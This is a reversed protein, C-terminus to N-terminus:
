LYFIDSLRPYAELAIQTGTDGFKSAINGKLIVSGIPTVRKYSVGFLHWDDAFRRDFHTYGYTIGVANKSTLENLRVLLGRAETNSPNIRLLQTLADEAALYEDTSNLIKAKLLWLAESQPNQTLGKDAIELAKVEEDNWYELSAYALYFDEDQVQKQELDQFVARAEDVNKNWTYLRGLFVSIDTYDPSKELAQKALSIAAPYDKQDFAVTRAQTFLDDATKEEQAFSVLPAFVF